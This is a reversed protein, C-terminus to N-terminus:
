MIVLLEKAKKRKKREKKLKQNEIKCEKMLFYAYLTEGISAGTLCHISDETM